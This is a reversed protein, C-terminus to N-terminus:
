PHPAIVPPLPSHHRDCDVSFAYLRCFARRNQLGRPRVPDPDRRQAVQLSHAVRAHAAQAHHLRVSVGLQQRGAARFRRVAHRDPRFAFRQGSVAPLHQLHDQGVVVLVAHAARGVAHAFQLLQAVLVANLMGPEPSPALLCFFFPDGLPLVGEDGVFWGFADVAEPADACAMRDGAVPRQLVPPASDEVLQVRRESLIIFRRFAFAAAVACAGARCARQAQFPLFAVPLPLDAFYRRGAGVARGPALEVEHHLVVLDHVDFRQVARRVVLPQAHLSPRSAKLEDARLVPQRIRQDTVPRGAFEPLRAPLLSNGVRRLAEHLNLLLVAPVRQGPKGAGAGGILIDVHHLLHHAGAEARVVRVVAGPHAVRRRHGAERLREAGARHGVRDVIDGM